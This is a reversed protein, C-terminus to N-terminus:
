HLTQDDHRSRERWALDENRIARLNRRMRWRKMRYRFQDVSPLGGGRVGRNLWWYAVGAGGLHGVHSVNGPGLTWELLFLVPILWIARFAVPPFMLMITRNPYTLSYAMIVGYIAGSAGVTPVTMSLSAFHFGLFTSLAPLGAILLGAGVGSVFYLQLFRKPGWLLAVPSGFMWLAFMNMAIHALGGHLFMYTFPQWIWGSWFLMPIVGGIDRFPIGRAEALTQVVFVVANAIMLQKVVPPTIPPGFSM